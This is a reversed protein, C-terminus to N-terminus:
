TKRKKKSPRKRSEPASALLGRLVADFQVKKAKM